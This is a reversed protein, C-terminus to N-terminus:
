NWGNALRYQTPHMGTRRKIFYSLYHGSSFRLREAVQLVSAGPAMLMETAKRLLANSLFEKPPMGIDRSFKRSFVDARMGYLDALNEVTTSADGNDRIFELAKGYRQGNALRERAGATEVALWSACLGFVIGNLECIVDVGGDRRGVLRWAAEVLEPNEVMHCRHHDRFVDFGYFLELDFHLSVFQVAPTLTWEIRHNCPVFYFCGPRMPFVEGTVPDRFMDEASGGAFVLFLWDDATLQGTGQSTYTGRHAHRLRLQFYPHAALLNLNSELAM